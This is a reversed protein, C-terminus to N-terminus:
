DDGETWNESIKQHCKAIRSPEKESPHEKM